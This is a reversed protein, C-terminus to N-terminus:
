CFSKLIVLNNLDFHLMKENQLFTLTSCPNMFFINKILNKRMLIYMIPDYDKWLNM